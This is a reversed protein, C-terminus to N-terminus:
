KLWSLRASYSELYRNLLLRSTQLPDKNASSNTLWEKVSNLACTQLSQIEDSYLICRLSCRSALIIGIMDRDTDGAKSAGSLIENDAYVQSVNTRADFALYELVSGVAGIREQSISPMAFLGTGSRGVYSHYESQDQNYKPLPLFGFGGSLSSLAPDEAMSLSATMFCLGGSTLKNFVDDHSAASFVAPKVTAGFLKEGILILREPTYDYVFAGDRNAIVSIKNAALVAFANDNQTPTFDLSLGFVGGTAASAAAELYSDLTFSGSIVLSQLQGVDVGQAACLGRNFLIARTYPLLDCFIDGTAGFQKGNVAIESNIGAAWWEKGLDLTDVRNLDLFLGETLLSGADMPMIVCDAPEGAISRTKTYEFVPRQANSANVGPAESLIFRIGADRELLTLRKYATKGLADGENGESLLATCYRGSRGAIIDVTFGPDLQPLPNSSGSGASSTIEAGPDTQAAAATTESSTTGEGDDTRTDAQAAAATTQSPDGAEPSDSPRVDGPQACSVAAASILILALMLSAIKIIKM